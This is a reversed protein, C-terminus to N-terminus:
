HTMHKGQSQSCRNCIELSLVHVSAVLRIFIHVPYTKKDNSCDILKNRNIKQLTKRCVQLYEQVSFFIDLICERTAINIRVSFTQASVRIAYLYECSMDRALPSSSCMESILSRDM